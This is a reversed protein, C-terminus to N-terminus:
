KEKEKGNAIKKLEKQLNKRKSTNKVSQANKNTYGKGM